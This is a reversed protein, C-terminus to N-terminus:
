RGKKRRRNEKVRRMHHQTYVTVPFTGACLVYFIGTALKVRWFDKGDAAKMVFDIFDPYREPNALAVRLDNYVAATDQIGARERLRMSFHPESNM